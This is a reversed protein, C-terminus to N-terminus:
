SKRDSSGIVVSDGRGSAVLAVRRLIFARMLLESLDADSQVIKRLAAASIELLEGAETMRARVLSRRGSLMNAEGTFEGERHVTIPIEEGDSPQVISMAGSLVVFFDPSSEGQEFILEGKEVKRRQGVHALRALQEDSLRPFMQARREAYPNSM